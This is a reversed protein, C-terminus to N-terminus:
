QLIKEQKTAIELQKQPNQTDCYTSEFKQVRYSQAENVESLQTIIGNGL